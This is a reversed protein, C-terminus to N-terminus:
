RGVVLSPAYPKYVRSVDHHIFRSLNVTGLPPPRLRFRETDVLGGEALRICDDRTIEIDWRHPFLVRDPTNRLKILGIGDRLEAEVSSGIWLAEVDKATLEIERIGPPDIV